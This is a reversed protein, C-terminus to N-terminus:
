THGSLRHQVINLHFFNPNISCLILVNHSGAAAIELARKATEQGRVESFDLHNISKPHLTDELDPIFQPLPTENSFHALVEKISGATLITLGDVLASAAGNAEPVILNSIGAKKAALAV